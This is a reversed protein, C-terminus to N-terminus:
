CPRMIISYLTTYSMISYCLTCCQLPTSSKMCPVCIIEGFNCVYAFSLSELIHKNLNDYCGIAMVCNKKKKKKKM